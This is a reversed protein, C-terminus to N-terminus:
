RLDDPIPLPPGPVPGPRRDFYVPKEVTKGDPLSEKTLLPGLNLVCFRDAPKASPRCLFGWQLTTASQDIFLLLAERAPVWNVGWAFAYRAKEQEPLLAAANRRPILGNAAYASDLSQGNDYVKTGSFATIAACLAKLHGSAMRASVPVTIRTDLLSSTAVLQGAANHFQAPVIHLGLRSELVKFRTGDDNQAHYADLLRGLAAADLKPAREPTLWGPLLMLRRDKLWQAHPASEDNGRINVDGRWQWVPDEFTVVVGYRQYLLGRALVELPRPALIDIPEDQRAVQAEIGPPAVAAIILLLAMARICAPAGSWRRATM